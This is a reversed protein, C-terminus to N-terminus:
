VALVYQGLLLYFIHSVGAPNHSCDLVEPWTGAWGICPRECQTKNCQAGLKAKLSVHPPLLFSAKRRPMM